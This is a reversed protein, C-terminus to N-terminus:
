NSKEMILLLSVNQQPLFLDWIVLLACVETMNDTVGAAQQSTYRKTCASHAESGGQASKYRM